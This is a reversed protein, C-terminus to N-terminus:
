RTIMVGESSDLTLYPGTIRTCNEDNIRVPWVQLAWTLWNLVLHCKQYGFNKNM